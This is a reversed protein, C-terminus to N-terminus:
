CGLGSLRCVPYHLSFGAFSVSWYSLACLCVGGTYSLPILIFWFDSVVAASSHLPCLFLFSFSCLITSSFGIIFIVMNFLYFILCVLKYSFFLLIVVLYHVLSCRWRRGHSIIFYFLFFVFLFTPFFVFFLVVAGAESDLNSLQSRCDELLRIWM